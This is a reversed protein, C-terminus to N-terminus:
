AVGESLNSKYERQQAKWKVMASWCDSGAVERIKQSESRRIVFFIFPIKEMNAKLRAVRATAVVM